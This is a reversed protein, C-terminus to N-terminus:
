MVKWIEDLRDAERRLLTARQRQAAAVAILAEAAADCDKAALLLRASCASLSGTHDRPARAFAQKLDDTSAADPSPPGPVQVKVVGSPPIPVAPTYGDNDQNM